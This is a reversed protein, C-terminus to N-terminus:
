EDLLEFDDGPKPTIQKRRIFYVTGASAGLFLILIVAFLYSNNNEENGANQIFNTTTLDQRVTTLDQRVIKDEASIKNSKSTPVSSLLRPKSPLVVVKNETGPTPTASVWAGNIGNSASADQSGESGRVPNIKQLSNGDGAGGSSSKYFYQNVLLDDDKITLVEGSNSLSFTSDFITGFFNPWDTKFKEVNSVILAYSWAELNANGQALVLKHNVDGEFFRFSSLDVSNNSNNFIEVWERGDDSGTKLDYMIESIELSAFIYYSPALLVILSLFISIKRSM